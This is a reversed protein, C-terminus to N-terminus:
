PKRAAAMQRRYEEVAKTYSGHKAILPLMAGKERRM